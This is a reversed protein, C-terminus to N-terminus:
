QATAEELTDPLPQHLESQQRVPLQNARIRLKERWAAKRLEWETPAPRNEFIAQRCLEIGRLGSERQASTMELPYANEM